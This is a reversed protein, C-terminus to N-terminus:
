PVLSIAIGVLAIVFGGVVIFFRWNPRTPVAPNDKLALSYASTVVIGVGSVALMILVISPERVLEPVSSVAFILGIGLLALLYIRQYNM